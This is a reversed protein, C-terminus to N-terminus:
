RIIHSMRKLLVASSDLSRLATGYLLSFGPFGTRQLAHKGPKENVAPAHAGAATTM